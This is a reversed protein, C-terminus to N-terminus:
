DKPNVMKKMEKLMQDDVKGKGYKKVLEDVNATPEGGKTADKYAKVFANLREESVPIKFKEAFSKAMNKVNEPDKWQEPTTNKVKNIMDFLSGKNVNKLREKLLDVGGVQSGSAGSQQTQASTAKKNETNKRKKAM